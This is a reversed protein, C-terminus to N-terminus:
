KDLRNEAIQMKEEEDVLYEFFDTFSPWITPNYKFEGIDCLNYVDEMDCWIVPSPKEPSDQTELFVAGGDGEDALVIYKHSLGVERFDLTIETVGVPFSYWQFHDIYDYRFLSNIEIFDRSFVISLDNSILELKKQSIVAHESLQKARLILKKVGDIM